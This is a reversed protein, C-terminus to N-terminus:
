KQAIVKEEDWGLHFLRPQGFIECVDRIIDSVVKYYEPSSVMRSYEKLWADHSASFNLKPIPELGLRRLRALEAKMKEPAWSGKVALEPHSPYVMGEGLDILLLNVGSKAARETVEDWVKQDTRNFDRACGDLQAETMGNTCLPMERWMNHGLQMMLGWVMGENSAAGAAMAAALAIGLMLKKM